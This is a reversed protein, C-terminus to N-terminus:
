PCKLSLEKKKKEGGEEGEGLFAPRSVFNGRAIKYGPANLAKEGEKGAFVEPLFISVCAPM